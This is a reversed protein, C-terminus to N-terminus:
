KLDLEKQRKKELEDRIRKVAIKCYEENIEIGIWKRNLREAAVGTTGVGFFPDLVTAGPDSFLNICRCMVSEPSMAPHGFREDHYLFGESPWRIDEWLDSKKSNSDVTTLVPRYQLRLGKEANHTIAGQRVIILKADPIEDWWIKLVKSGLIIILRNLSIARAHGIFNKIFIKYEFSSLNDKYTGYDKNLNYPPDTIVLDVQGDGIYKMIEFCDAHYLIGRFERERQVVFFPKQKICDKITELEM